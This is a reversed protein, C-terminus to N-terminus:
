NNAQVRKMILIENTKSYTRSLKNAIYEYGAIELIKRYCSVGVGGEFYPLTGYGSGYGLIDRNDKKGEQLGKEKMTYLIKLVQNSKNLAKAVAMSQRDCGIDHSSGEFVIEDVVVSVSTQKNYKHICIVINKPESSNEVDEIHKLVELKEKEIIKLARKSAYEIAKERTIEGNSYQEFRRETIYPIIGTKSEVCELKKLANKKRDEHEKIIENRLNEFKM